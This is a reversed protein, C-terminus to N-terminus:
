ANPVGGLKARERAIRAEEALSAANDKRRDQTEKVAIALAETAALLSQRLATAAVLGVGDIDVGRPLAHMEAIEAAVLGALKSTLSAIIDVDAATIRGLYYAEHVALRSARDEGVIAYTNLM